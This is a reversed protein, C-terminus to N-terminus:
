GRQRRRAAVAVIGLGLLALTGPEPVPKLTDTQLHAGLYFEESFPPDDSVITLSYTSSDGYHTADGITSANWVRMFFTDGTTFQPITHDTAGFTYTLSDQGGGTNPGGDVTLFSAMVYTNAGAYDGSSPDPNVVSGSSTYLLQVLGGGLNVGSEDQFRFAGGGFDLQASYAHSVFVLMALLLYYKKM